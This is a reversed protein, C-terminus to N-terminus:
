QQPQTTEIQIYKEIERRLQETQSWALMSIYCDISFGDVFAAFCSAASSSYRNFLTSHLTYLANRINRIQIATLYFLTWILHLPFISHLPTSFNIPCLEITDYSTIENNLCASVGNDNNQNPKRDCNACQNKNNNLHKNIINVHWSSPTQLGHLLKSQEM